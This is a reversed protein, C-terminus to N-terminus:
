RGCSWCWGGSTRMLSGAPAGAWHEAGLCYLWGRRGPVQQGGPCLWGAGHSCIAVSLQWLARRRGTGPTPSCLRAQGEARSHTLVQGVLAGTGQGGPWFVALGLGQPWVTGSGPHIAGGGRCSATSSAAEGGRACSGPRPWPADALAPTQGDTRRDSPPAFLRPEGQARLRASRLTSVTVCM